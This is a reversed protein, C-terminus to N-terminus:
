QYKEYLTQAIALTQDSSLFLSSFAARQLASLNFILPPIEKKQEQKM